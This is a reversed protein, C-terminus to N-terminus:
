QLIHMCAHMVRRLFVYGYIYIIGVGLVVIFMGNYDFVIKNCQVVHSILSACLLFLHVLVLSLSRADSVVLFFISSCGVARPRRRCLYPWTRSSSAAAPPQKTTPSILSSTPQESTHHQRGRRGEMWRIACCPPLFFSKPSCLSFPSITTFTPSMCPPPPTIPPPSHLSPPNPRRVRHAM